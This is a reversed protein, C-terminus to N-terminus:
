SRENAKLAEAHMRALDARKLVESNGDENRLEEFLRLAAQYDRRASSEGKSTLASAVIFHTKARPVRVGLADARALARSAGRIAGDHDGIRHLADLGAIETEVSLSRLGRQDAEGSLKQLTAVLARSPREAAAIIAQRAAIMLGLSRDASGAAAEQAKRALDVAGKLDGLYYLRDSQYLLVQGILTANKLDLALKLAEDLTAKADDMRGSLTASAGYGALIEVLAYDRQGLDRFAQLAEGKSKIAAGFHGQYDFIAGIGYSALAANRRDGSSRRLELAAMYRELARDYRGMRTLTDGLNHLTDAMEQPNKADKRIALAGEFNTQAESYQGRAFYTAGLNNLARAELNRNGTERTIQLAERLLPLAEASRGFTEDLLSSLDMLTISIGTKDGIERRLRLAERYSTEALKPQGLTKQVEGIQVYSAAMGRKDGIGKKIGLSEEYRRLAETPRSLRMYAIGSAQLINARAADNDLQTALTGAKDLYELSAQPQGRRIEVRGLALLGLVFKPDLQVVQVFQERAQDLAGTEEYLSALDFRLMPDSPAAKVLAQYSEIAKDTENTIRYHTASIRHREQASLGAALTMAERSAQAAENDYGLMSYTQALGAFGLAFAPDERTAAQFPKLASSYKGQQLLRTGENYLHLASLSTTSPKWSSAKLEDVLSASGQALHERVRDALSAIADLVANENPAVANVPINEGRDLDQLTGNIQITNGFRAINGWLVHRANTFDAVGALREPTLASNTAIQLDGLVQNLRDPPVSRVRSSHGLTTSLVQALSPGLPDLTPDGSVNRFPVIAVTIGPGAVVPTPSQSSPAGGDRWVWMGVSTIVVVLLAAAAWRVKTGRFRGRFGGRIPAIAPADGGAVRDIDRLLEKATQYRDAADPQLCRTVLADVAEPITPDISRLSIPPHQMRGMLESVASTNGGSRGGVLMDRLILGFAYLDARQDVTEGKAQEPAMYEVTGIVQAGVTMAFATAGSTSRAIGFDMIVAHDGEAEDVMINAPKLDRHVVGAEHAAILGSAIQRAIGLARAVPLRGERKLVTALDAGHIYPMTIYKIGEIEGIDHIRVVHKDTVQRALLLERKFRRELEQAMVPDATVDPRIVKVAVAVELEQDWAQYVSGMGGVGLLRIIHYRSGFNQGVALPGSAGVATQGPRHTMGTVGGPVVTEGPEALRTAADPDTLASPTPTLVGAAVSVSAPLAKGCVPCRGAIAPAASGCQPCTM